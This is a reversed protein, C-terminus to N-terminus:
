QGSSDRCVVSADVEERRLRGGENEWGDAGHRPRAEPAESRGPAAPEGHEHGVAAFVTEASATTAGPPIVRLTIHERGRLIVTVQEPRMSRFWGVRVARGPAAIRRPISLWANVQLGVRLTMEGLRRDIAAILGPLEVGADTSRPWWAGTVPASRGRTADLRLRVVAAAGSREAPQRAAPVAVTLAPQQPTM